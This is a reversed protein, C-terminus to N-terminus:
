RAANDRRTERYCEALAKIVAFRAPDDNRITSMAIEHLTTQRMPNEPMLSAIFTKRDVWTTSAPATQKELPPLQVGCARAFKGEGRSFYSKETPVTKIHRTFSPRSQKSRKGNIFRRQEFALRDLYESAELYESAQVLTNFSM